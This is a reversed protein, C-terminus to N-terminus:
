FQVKMKRKRVLLDKWQVRKGIRDGRWVVRPKSADHSMARRRGRWKTVDDKEREQLGSPPRRLREM